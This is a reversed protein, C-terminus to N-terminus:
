VVQYTKSKKNVATYCTVMNKGQSGSPARLRITTKTQPPVHAVFKTGSYYPENTISVVEVGANGKKPEPTPNTLVFTLNLKEYYKVVLDGIQLAALALPILTQWQAEAKEPFASDFAATGIFGITGLGVLQIFKRRGYFITEQRSMDPIWLGSDPSQVLPCSSVSHIQLM